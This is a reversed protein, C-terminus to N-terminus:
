GYEADIAGRIATLSKGAKYLRYALRAQGKCVVCAQAMGDTEFCTLLSYYDPIDACGCYCGIGDIIQPIERVMDFVPAADPAVKDSALVKSADIGRRPDPHKGSGAM